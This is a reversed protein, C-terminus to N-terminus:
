SVKRFPSIAFGVQLLYVYSLFKQTFTQSNSSFSGQMAVPSFPTSSHPMPSWHKGISEAIESPFVQWYGAEYM